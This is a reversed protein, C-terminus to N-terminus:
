IESLAPLVLMGALVGVWIRHLVHSNRVRLTRIALLAISALLLSKATTDVILGLWQWSVTAMNGGECFSPGSEALQQRAKRRQRTRRGERYPRGARPAERGHDTQRRGDGGAPEGGIRQVAQRRHRAGTAFRREAARTEAPLRFDAWRRRARSLGEG